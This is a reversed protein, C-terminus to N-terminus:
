TRSIKSLLIIKIPLAGLSSKESLFDGQPVLVYVQEGVDYTSLPDSSYADFVNGQYAVKYQGIDINVVSKIEADVTADNKAASVEDKAITNVADFFDQVLKSM